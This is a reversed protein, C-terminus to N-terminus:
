VWLLAAAVLSVLIASASAAMLWSKATAPPGVRTLALVALPIVVALAIGGVPAGVVCKAVFGWTSHSAGSVWWPTRGSGLVFGATLCIGMLVIGALSTWALATLSIAQVTRSAIARSTDAVSEALFHQVARTEKFVTDRVMSAHATEVEKVAKAIQAPYARYRGDYSELLILFAWVADNDRVGLAHSIKVLRALEDQTAPHGTLSEYLEAPSPM